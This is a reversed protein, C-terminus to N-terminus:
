QQCMGKRNRSITNRRLDVPPLEVELEAAAEAAADQLEADGAFFADLAGDDGSEVRKVLAYIDEKQKLKKKNKKMKRKYAEPNSHRLDMMDEAEEEKVAAIQDQRWKPVSGDCAEDDERQLVRM